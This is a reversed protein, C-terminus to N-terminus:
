GAAKKICELAKPSVFADTPTNLSDYHTAAPQRNSDAYVGVNVVEHTSNRTRDLTYNAVFTSDPPTFRDKTVKTLPDACVFDEVNFGKEGTAAVIRTTDGSLAAPLPHAKLAQVTILLYAMFALVFFGVPIYWYDWARRHVEALPKM